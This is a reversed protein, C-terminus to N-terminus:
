FQVTIDRENKNRQIRFQVLAHPPLKKFISAAEDTSNVYRDNIKIVQDKNKLGAKQATSGDLVVVFIRGADYTLGLGPVPVISSDITGDKFPSEHSFSKTSEEIFVPDGAVWVDYSFYGGDVIWVCHSKPDSYRNEDFGITWPHDQRDKMIALEAIEAVEKPNLTPQSKCTGSRVSYRHGLSTLAYSEDFQHSVYSLVSFAIFTGIVLTCFFWIIYTRVLKKTTALPKCSIM